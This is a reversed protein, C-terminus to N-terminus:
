RVKAWFGGRNLEEIFDAHEILWGYGGCPTNPYMRGLVLLAEGLDLLVPANACAVSLRPHKWRFTRYTPDDTARPIRIQLRDEDYPERTDFLWCMRRYFRERDRIEVPSISSHQLEVVVDDASVMDARHPKIVVERRELPVVCKWQRHWETEGDSWPDCDEAIEHAFHWTVIEGCKPIL